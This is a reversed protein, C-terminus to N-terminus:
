YSCTECKTQWRFDGGTPPSKRRCGFSSVQVGGRGTCVDNASPEIDALHFERLQNLRIDRFTTRPVRSSIENVNAPSEGALTVAAIEGFHVQSREWGDPGVPSGQPGTAHCPLASIEFDIRSDSLM